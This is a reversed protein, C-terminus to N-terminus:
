LDNLTKHKNLPHIMWKEKMHILTKDFFDESYSNLCMQGIWTATLFAIVDGSSKKKSEMWQLLIQHLERIEQQTMSM